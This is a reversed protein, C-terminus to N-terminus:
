PLETSFSSLLKLLAQDGINPEARGTTLCLSVEDNNAPPQIIQELYGDALYEDELNNQSSVRDTALGSGYVEVPEVCQSIRPSTLGDYDSSFDPCMLDDFSPLLCDGM